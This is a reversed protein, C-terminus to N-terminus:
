VTSPTQLQEDDHLESLRVLAARPWSQDLAALCYDTQMRFTIQNNLGNREVIGRAIDLAQRSVDTGVFSMGYERAGLLSYVCNAGVGVDIVRVPPGTQEEAVHLLRRTAHEGDAARPPEEDRPSSRARTNTTTTDLLSSSSSSLDVGMEILLDAAAHIYNARSPLTPVLWGAAIDWEIGYYEKFLARTLLRLANPAKFAFHPLGFRNTSIFEKLYDYKEALAFFNTGGRHKNRSHMKDNNCVYSQVGKLRKTQKQSVVGDEVDGGDEATTKRKSSSSGRM